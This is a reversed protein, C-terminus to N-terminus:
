LPLGSHEAARSSFRVLLADLATRDYADVELLERRIASAEAIANEHLIAGDDALRLVAAIAANAAERVADYTVIDNARWASREDTM